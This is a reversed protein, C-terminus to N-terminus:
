GVEVLKTVSSCDRRANDRCVTLSVTTPRSLSVNLNPNNSSVVVNGNWRWEWSRPAGSSNDIFRISDGPAPREPAWLFDAALGDTGPQFSISPPTSPAAPDTSGATTATTTPAASAAEVIRISMSHTAMSVGNAREAQVSVAVSGDGAKTFTHTVSEGEARRGDITWEITDADGDVVARYTVAVGVEVERPGDIQVGSVRGSTPGDGAAARAETTSPAPPDAPQPASAAEDDDDVATATPAATPADDGGRLAIVAVGVGLVAVALVGILIPLLKSRGPAPGRVSGALPGDPPSWGPKGAVAATADGPSPPALPPSAPFAAPGAAGFSPPAAGPGGPGGAANPVTGYGDHVPVGASGPLPPAAAEVPPLQTTPETAPADPRDPHAELDMPDYVPIAPRRAKDESSM